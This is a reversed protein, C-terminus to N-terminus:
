KTAPNRSQRAKFNEGQNAITPDPSEYIRMGDTVYVKYHLVVEKSNLNKMQYGRRGGLLTGCCLQSPPPDDKIYVPSDQIFKWKSALNPDIQWLIIRGFTKVAVLDSPDFTIAGTEENIHVIIVCKFQECNVQQANLATGWFMVAAATAVIGIWKAIM